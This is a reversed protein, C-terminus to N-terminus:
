CAHEKFGSNTVWVEEKVKSVIEIKGKDVARPPGILMPIVYVEIGCVKCLEKIVPM